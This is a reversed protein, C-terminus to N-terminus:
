SGAAPATSVRGPPNSFGYSIRRDSNAQLSGVELDNARNVGSVVSPRLTRNFIPLTNNVTVFLPTGSQYRHIANMNWSGAIRSLVGTSLWRKGPGFPLDYTYQLVLAHPIDYNLLIGAADVL